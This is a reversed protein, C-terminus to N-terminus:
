VGLSHSERGETHRSSLRELLFAPQQHSRKWKPRGTSPPSMAELPRRQMRFSSLPTPVVTSPCNHMTQSPTSSSHHLHFPLEIQPPFLDLPKGIEPKQKSRILSIQAWCPKSSSARLTYPFVSLPSSLHRQHSSQPPCQPNM